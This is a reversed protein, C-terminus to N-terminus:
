HQSPPSRTPTSSLACALTPPPSGASLTTIERTSRQLSTDLLLATPLAWRTAAALQSLLRKSLQLAPRNRHERACKGRRHQRRPLCALRSVRRQEAKQTPHNIGPRM